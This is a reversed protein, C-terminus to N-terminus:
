QASKTLPGGTVGCPMVQLRGRVTYTLQVSTYGTPVHPNPRAGMCWRPIVRQRSPTLGRVWVRSDMCSPSATGLAAGPRTGLAAGACPRTGLAAIGALLSAAIRAPVTAPIGAAAIRAIGAAIRATGLIPTHGAIHLMASAIDLVATGVAPAVALVFVPLTPWVLLETVPLVPVPVLLDSLLAVPLVPLPLLLDSLLAVPLVPLPLMLDPLGPLVALTSLDTLLAVALELVPVQVPLTAVAALAVPVTSVAMVAPCAVTVTSVALRSLSVFVQSM